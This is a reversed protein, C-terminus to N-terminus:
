PAPKGEAAAPPSSTLKLLREIQEAQRLLQATLNAIKENQETEAPSPNRPGPTSNPNSYDFKKTPKKPDTWGGKDRLEVYPVAKLDSATNGKRFLDIRHDETEQESTPRRINIRNAIDEAYEPTKAIIYHTGEWFVAGSGRNCLILADAEDDLHEARISREKASITTATPYNQETIARANDPLNYLIVVLSPDLDDPLSIDTINHPSTPSRTPLSRNLRSEPNNTTWIKVVFSLPFCGGRFNVAAPLFFTSAISRQVNNTRLHTNPCFMLMGAEPEAIGIQEDTKRQNSDQTDKWTFGDWRLGICKLDEVQLEHVIFKATHFESGTITHVASTLIYRGTSSLDDKDYIRAELPKTIPQDLRIGLTQDGCRVSKRFTLFDLILPLHKKDSVTIAATQTASPRANGKMTYINLEGDEVELASLAQLLDERPTGPRIGYVQLPIQPLQDLQLHAFDNNDLSWSDLQLIADELKRWDEATIEKNKVKKFIKNFENRRRFSQDSETSSPTTSSTDFRVTRPPAQPKPPPAIGKRELEHEAQRDKITQTAQTWDTSPDFELEDNLLSPLHPVVQPHKSIFENMRTTKIESPTNASAFGALQKLLKSLLLADKEAAAAAPNPKGSPPETGPSTKTTQPAAHPKKEFNTGTNGLRRNVILLFTDWGPQGVSVTEHEFHYKFTSKRLDQNTLLLRNLLPIKVTPPLASTDLYRILAYASSLMNMRPLFATPLTNRLHLWFQEDHCLPRATDPATSHVTEYTTVHKLALERVQINNRLLINVETISRDNIHALIERLASAIELDNSTHRDYSLQLKSDKIHTSPVVHILQADKLNDLGFMRETATPAPPTVPQEPEQETEEEEARTMANNVAHQFLTWHDITPPHLPDINYDMNDTVTLRLIESSYLVENFYLHHLGPEVQSAISNLLSILSDLTQMPEFDPDWETQICHALASALSEADPEHVLQLATSYIDNITRNRHALSHLASVKFTSDQSPDDLVHLAWKLSEQRINTMNTFELGSDFDPLPDYEPAQFLDTTMATDEHSTDASSKASDPTSHADPSNIACRDPNKGGDTPTFFSTINPSPQPTRKLTASINKVNSTTPKLITSKTKKKPLFMSKNGIATSNLNYAMTRRGIQELISERKLKQIRAWEEQDLPAGGINPDQIETWPHPSKGDTMDLERKVKSTSFPPKTGSINM